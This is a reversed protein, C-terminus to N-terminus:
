IRARRLRLANSIVSVSSLSMAAAAIMPNLLWGTFPYLIGAAIPIGLSNYVFAFFLNQRINRMTARSLTCAKAIGRLDGKVLTVGASAMAADTGTGMAIGVHAAALAPADNIGDGAMAVVHGANCLSQVQNYKEEPSVNAMVNNIGLTTAVHSAAAQNDGTLMHIKLGLAHLSNVAEATTAKIPDTISILGAAKNDIAVAAVSGGSTLLNATNSTLSELEVVNSETLYHISGVHVQHGKVIATVGGGPAAVFAAAEPLPTNSYDKAARVIAAALPHESNQEVAAALMIIEADSYPPEAHTATVSPRGETLTGTKDVVITNVRALTELAEADRILVGETAGRGIGVTISMPTALGLACPCAIILVAVANVLAFALRPEPGFFAWVLFAIIAVSVVVPVFYGAVSDALRQIPARSRQADTVLKLIQSLVTEDGVKTAQMLFAGSHNITAGTVADGVNKEVPVPEGSIMSEDVSGHGETVLGDTPVSTGPRVRLIDGVAVEALPVEHDGDPRVILATMPALNMLERMAAGTRKRARLELVQGLMVLAIIVAASEFYLPLEGHHRFSDPFIGPSVLAVVSYIFAAGTGIGILTFMNLNFTAISRWARKFFTLGLGAVVPTALVLELWRAVNQPIIRAIPNGPIMSGMSIIFLPVVLVLSVVFRRTMDILESDDDIAGAEEPELAM